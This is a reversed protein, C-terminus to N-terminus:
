TPLLHTQGTEMVFAINRGVRIFSVGIPIETPM